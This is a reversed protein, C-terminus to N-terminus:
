LGIEVPIDDKSPDTANGLGPKSLNLLDDFFITGALREVPAFCVPHLEPSIYTEKM